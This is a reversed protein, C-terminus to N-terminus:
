DCTCRQFDGSAAAGCTCGPMLREGMTARPSVQEAPADRTEVQSVKLEAGYVRRAYNRTADLMTAAIDHGVSTPDASDYSPLVEIVIFTRKM